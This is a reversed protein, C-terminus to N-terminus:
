CEFQFDIKQLEINNNKNHKLFKKFFFEGAFVDIEPRRALAKAQLFVNIPLLLGFCNEFLVQGNTSWFWYINVRLSSSSGM